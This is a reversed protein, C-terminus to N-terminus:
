EAELFEDALSVMEQIDTYDFYQEQMSEPIVDEIFPGIAYLCDEITQFVYFGDM